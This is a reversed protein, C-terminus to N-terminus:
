KWAKPVKLPKFSGSVIPLNSMLYTSPTTGNMSNIYMVQILIPTTSNESLKL